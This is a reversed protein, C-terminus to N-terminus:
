TSRAAGTEVVHAPLTVPRDWAAPMPDDYSTRRLSALVALDPTVGRLPTSLRTMTGGSDSVAHDERSRDTM